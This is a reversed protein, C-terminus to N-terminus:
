RGRMRGRLWQEQGQVHCGRGKENVGGEEKSFGVRIREM